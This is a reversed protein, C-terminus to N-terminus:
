INSQLNGPTKITKPKRSDITYLAVAAWILAFSALRLPPMPEHYLLWGIAFQITPGIFQLIGLTTLSISRAAHGFFFLPLMTAAGIAVLLLLAFTPQDSPLANSPHLLLWATAFPAMLLTEVSLGSLSPLRSRKKVVSYLSFTVALVIAIWPWGSIAPFQLAVGALAMGIVILQTRNHREGFWLFGFLMNFFPNLYYGLAGELIRENLTAWIYLLWNGALLLGSLTHWGLSRPDRLSQLAETWGKRFWLVLALLLLGWITRHCVITLPPLFALQKWFVPLIGWLVFAIVASLVGSKPNM